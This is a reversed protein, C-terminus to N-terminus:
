ATRIKWWWGAMRDVMRMGIDGGSVLWYVNTETYPSYYHNEGHYVEGRFQIYDGPDFQNDRAGYVYSPIQEGRNYMKVTKPDIASVAVGQSQLYEYSLSYIGDETVTIRYATSDGYPMETEVMVSKPLAARRQQWHRSSEYNLLTNKLISQFPGVDTPLFVPEEFGPLDSQSGGGFTVRLILRKHFLLEGSAPNYQLPYVELQAVRQDRIFVIQTVKAIRPPFFTNQSYLPDNRYFETTTFPEGSKTLSLVRRPAPSVHYNLSRATEVEVVEVTVNAELPIGLMMVRLPLQPEGEEQSLSAGDLSLHHYIQGEIEEVSSDFGRSIIEIEAGRDDSRVLRVAPSVETDKITDTLPRHVRASRQGEYDSAFRSPEAFSLSFLGCLVFVMLLATHIRSDGKWRM